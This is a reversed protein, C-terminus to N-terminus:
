HQRVNVFIHFKKGIIYHFVVFIKCFLNTRTPRVISNLKTKLQTCHVGQIVEFRSPKPHLWVMSQPRKVVVSWLLNLCNAKCVLMVHTHITYQAGLLAHTSYTGHQASSFLSSRAVIPLVRPLLNALDKSHHADQRRSVESPKHLGFMKVLHLILDLSFVFSLEM